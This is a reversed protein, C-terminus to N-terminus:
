KMFCASGWVNWGPTYNTLYSAAQQSKSLFHVDTHDDLNKSVGPVGPNTLITFHFLNQDSLDSHAQAMYSTLYSGAPIKVIEPKHWRRGGAALENIASQLSAHGRQQRLALSISRICIHLHDLWKSKAKLKCQLYNYDGIPVRYAFAKKKQVRM